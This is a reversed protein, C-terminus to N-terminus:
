SGRNASITMTKFQQNNALAQYKDSERVAVTYLVYSIYGTVALMVAFIGLFLRAKMTATSKEM